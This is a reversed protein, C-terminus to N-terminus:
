KCYGDLAAVAVHAYSEAELLSTRPHTSLTTNEDVLLFKECVYGRLTGVSM